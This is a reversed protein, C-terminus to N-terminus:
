KGEEFYAQLEEFQWQHLESLKRIDWGKEKLCYRSMDTLAMKKLDMQEHIYMLQDMDIVTEDKDQLGSFKQEPEPELAPEPEKKRSAKSKPKEKPKEEIVTGEGGVIDRGLTVAPLFQRSRFCPKICAAECCSDLKGDVILRCKRALKALHIRGAVKVEFPPDTRKFADEIESLAYTIKGSFYLIKSRSLQDAAPLVAGWLM